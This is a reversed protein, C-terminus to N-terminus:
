KLIMSNMVNGDAPHPMCGEAPSGDVDTLFLRINKM